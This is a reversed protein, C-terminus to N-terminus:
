RARNADLVSSVTLTESVEGPRIRRVRDLRLVPDPTAYTVGELGRLLYTFRVEDSRHPAPESTVIPTSTSPAASRRGSLQLASLM